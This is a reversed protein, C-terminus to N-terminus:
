TFIAIREEDSAANLAALPDAAVHSPKAPPRPPPAVPPPAPESMASAIAQAAIVSSAIAAAEPPAASPTAFSETDIEAGSHPAAAAPRIPVAAPLPELLFDAPEGGGQEEGLSLADV